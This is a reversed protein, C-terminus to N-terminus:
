GAVEENQLQVALCHKWVVKSPVDVRRWSLLEYLIDRTTRVHVDDWLRSKLVQFHVHRVKANLLSDDLEVSKRLTLSREQLFQLLAATFEDTCKAQLCSFLLDCLPLLDGHDLYVLIFYISKRPPSAVCEAPCDIRRFVLIVDEHHQEQFVHAVLPFVLPLLILFLVVSVLLAYF